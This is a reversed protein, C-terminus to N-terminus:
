KQYTDSGMEFWLGVMARQRPWARFYSNYAEYHEAATKGDNYRRNMFKPDNKFLAAVLYYNPRQTLDHNETGHHVLIQDMSADAVVSNSKVQWWLAEKMAAETESKLRGPYHNSHTHFLHLIRVYDAIAFYAWPWPLKKSTEPKFKEQTNLKKVTELFVNANKLLLANAKDTKQNLSLASLSWLTEGWPGKIWYSDRAITERLVQERLKLSAAHTEAALKEIDAYKGGTVVPLSPTEQSLAPTVTAFLALLLAGAITTRKM